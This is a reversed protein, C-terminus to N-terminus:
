GAWPGGRGAPGSGAGPGAGKQPAKGTRGGAGRLPPAPARRPAARARDWTLRYRYYFRRRIRCGPLIEHVAARIRGLSERAPATAVGIDASERHLRGALRVPLVSLGALAWDWPTAHAAMGIIIPRGGPAVLDRLARLGARLPVHHLVAVRTVTQFSGLRAALDGALLGQDELRATELCELRRRARALAREDTDIGVLREAAPAMRELLLADGCGVDLVRGARQAADRVLEDHFSTNHNWYQGPASAGSM